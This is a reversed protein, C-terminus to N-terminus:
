QCTRRRPSGLGGLRTANASAANDTAVAPCEPVAYKIDLTWSDPEQLRDLTVQVRVGLPDRVHTVYNEIAEGVFEPCDEM